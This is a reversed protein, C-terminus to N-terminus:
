IRQLLNKWPIVIKKKLKYDDEEFLDMLQDKWKDSLFRAKKRFLYKKKLEYNFDCINQVLVIRHKQFEDDDYDEGEEEEMDELLEM